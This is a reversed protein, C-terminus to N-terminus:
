KSEEICLVQAGNKDLTVKKVNANFIFGNDKM